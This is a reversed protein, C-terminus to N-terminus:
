TGVFQNRHMTLLTFATQVDDPWPQPLEVAKEWWECWLLYVRGPGAKKMAGCGDIFETFGRGEDKMMSSITIDPCLARANQGWPVYECAEKMGNLLHNKRDEVKLMMWGVTFCTDDLEAWIKAILLQIRCVQAHLRKPMTESHMSSGPQDMKVIESMIPFVDQSASLTQLAQEWATDWRSLDFVINPITFKNAFISDDRFNGGAASMLLFPGNDVTAKAGV